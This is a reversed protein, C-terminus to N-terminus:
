FKLREARELIIGKYKEKLEENFFSINILNLINNIKSKYRKMIKDVTLKSINVSEAFDYFDSLSFRSKKGRMTLAFEENDQSQPIVLRTSLLDYAPSLRYMENDYLISFNKLHMDSNGCIFSLLNIEFFKVMDFMPNSSFKFIGKAIQELSSRYKDETMRGTLQAMDEMPLKLGGQRDIRRTIYALEGSKLRMLSNPVTDIGMLKAIKMTLSENEPLSPYDDSPPKLIYDGLVGVITLRKARNNESNSYGVSIKKQVGTVAFKALISEEAIKDIESLSFDLTPPTHIGFFKNSCKKHFDIQDNDLIEYCYLCKNAKM